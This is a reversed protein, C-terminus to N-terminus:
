GALLKFVVFTLVVGLMLSLGGVLLLMGPSVSVRGAMVSSPAGEQERASNPRSTPAGSRPASDPGSGPAGSSPPGGGSRPASIPQPKSSTAADDSRTVDLIRALAWAPAYPRLAEAFETATAYRDERDKNLARAIADGLGPPFTKGEVREDLPIPPTMVHLQIYEMSTRADFPLKGTLAEYLIVALSYIDSRRDLLQGQAQEPSMFEPTGFVMGEQTLMISGPRLERETVKALGFDMIKAKKDRTWMTNASKIDRHVVRNEHAYALAECVQVLVQLIGAPSIM